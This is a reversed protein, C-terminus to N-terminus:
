FALFDHVARLTKHADMEVLSVHVGENYIMTFAGVMSSEGEEGETARGVALKPPQSSDSVAISSTAAEASWGGAADDMDVEITAIETFGELNNKDQAPDPM